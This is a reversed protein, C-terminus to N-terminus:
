YKENEIIKSIETLDFWTRKKEIPSNILFSPHYIIHAKIKKEKIQYSFERGRLKTVSESFNLISNAAIGGVLIILKPQIIKIHERTFPLCIKIEEKNPVRNGPPRWFVLNSFYCNNKNLGIYSLMLSLLKGDEGSFPIGSRDEESGPADGILMVNSDINGDSFVFNTATEKISLTQQNIRKKLTELKEKKGPEVINKEIEHKEGGLDKYNNRTIAKDLKLKDIEKFKTTPSKNILDHIGVQNCFDMFSKTNKIIM